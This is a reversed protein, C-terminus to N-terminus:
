PCNPMQPPPDGAGRVAWGSGLNYAQGIGVRKLAQCATAVAIAEIAVGREGAKQTYLARRKINIQDVEARVADSVQSRVGLYGDAREGVQGASIAASVGTSQAWAVGAVGVMALGAAVVLFKGLKTM